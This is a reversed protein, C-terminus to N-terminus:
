KKRINNVSKPNALKDWDRFRMHVIDNEHRQGTIHVIVVPIKNEPCNAEAQKMAAEGRYAKYAKAEISYTHHKIDEGGLTGVNMGNTMKSLKAQFARGRRKNQIVIKRKDAM